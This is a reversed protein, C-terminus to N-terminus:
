QAFRKRLGKIVKLESKHYWFIWSLQELFNKSKVNSPQYSYLLFFIIHVKSHLMNFSQMCQNDIYVTHCSRFWHMSFPFWATFYNSMVFLRSSMHSICWIFGVLKRNSQLFLFFYHGDTTTRNLIYICPRGYIGARYFSDFEMSHTCMPVVFKQTFYEWPHLSYHYLINKWCFRRKEKDYVLILNSFSTM